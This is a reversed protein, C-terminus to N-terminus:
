SHHTIFSSNDNKANNRKSISVLMKLLENCDEYMSEYQRANIYDTEKLLELWYLTEAAEKKAIGIKAFFDPRSQAYSAETVNAGISTGSRLIQKSLIFECKEKTLFGYLRVVRIAFAFGKDRLVSNRM